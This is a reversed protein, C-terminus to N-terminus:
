IWYGPIKSLSSISDATGASKLYDEKASGARKMLKLRQDDQKKAADMFLASSGTSQIGSAAARARREAQEAATRNREDAMEMKTQAKAQAAADKGGQYTQYAGYVTAATGIYPALATIAPAVPGM